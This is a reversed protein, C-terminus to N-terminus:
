VGPCAALSREVSPTQGCNLPAAFITSAARGSAMESKAAHRQQELYVTHDSRWPPRRIGREFCTWAFPDVMPEASSAAVAVFALGLSVLNKPAHDVDRRGGRSHCGGGCRSNM